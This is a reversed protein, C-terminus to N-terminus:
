NSEYIIFRSSEDDVHYIEELAIAPDEQSSGRRTVEEMGDVDSVDTNMLSDRKSQTSFRRSDSKRRDKDKSNRRNSSRRGTNVYRFKRDTMVGRDVDHEDITDKDSHNSETHKSKHSRETSISVDSEEDESKRNRNIKRLDFDMGSQKLKSVADGLKGVLETSSKEEMEKFRNDMMAAMTQKIQQTM